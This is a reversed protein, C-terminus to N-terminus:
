QHKLIHISGNLTDFALRPGGRGARVAYADGARYIKKGRKERIAPVTRPVATVDFDTYAKGNLTKLFLDASFPDRFSVEVSGNVTRFTCEEAPNMKFGVRLSGNVTSAHGSGSIETMTVDGNVNKIEFSGSVDRVEIDGDNVTHLYLNLSRPVKLEFDFSVEYGYYRYGRFDHRNWRNRWPADVVLEIRSRLEQIELVVDESAERFKEDSKARTRRVATMEVTEGEYATVVISGQVNDVLLSREPGSAPFRLTKTIIEERVDQCRAVPILVFFCLLIKM